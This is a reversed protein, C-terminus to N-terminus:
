EKANLNGTRIYKGKKTIMYIYDTCGLLCKGNFLKNGNKSIGLFEVKFSKNKCHKCQKLNTEDSNFEIVDVLKNLINVGQM